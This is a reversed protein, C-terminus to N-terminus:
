KDEGESRSGSASYLEKWTDACHEMTMDTSERHGHRSDAGSGFGLRTNNKRFSNLTPFIMAM